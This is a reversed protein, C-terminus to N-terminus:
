AGSLLGTLVRPAEGSWPTGRREFCAAVARQLTAGDSAFAGTLAWVDHFDKM